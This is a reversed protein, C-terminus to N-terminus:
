TFYVFFPIYLCFISGIVTNGIIEKESFFQYFLIERLTSMENPLHTSLHKSNRIEHNIKTLLILELEKQM